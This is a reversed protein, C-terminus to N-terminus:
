ADREEALVVVSDELRGEEHVLADHGLGRLQGLKVLLEVLDDGAVAIVLVEDGGRLLGDRGEM